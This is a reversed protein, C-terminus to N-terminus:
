DELYKQPYTFFDIETVDNQKIRLNVTELIDQLWLHSYSLEVLEEARIVYLQCETSAFFNVM